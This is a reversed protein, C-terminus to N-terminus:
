IFESLQFHWSIEFTQNTLHPQSSTPWFTCQGPKAGNCVQLYLRNSPARYDRTVVRSVLLGTPCWGKPIYVCKCEATCDAGARVVILTLLFVLGATVCKMAHSAACSMSLRCNACACYVLRGTMCCSRQLM